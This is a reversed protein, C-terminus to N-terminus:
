FEDLHFYEAIRFQGTDYADLMDEVGQVSDMQYDVKLIGVYGANDLCQLHIADTAFDMQWGPTEQIRDVIGRSRFAQEVVGCMADATQAILEQEALLKDVGEAGQKLLDYVLSGPQLEMLWFDSGCYDETPAVRYFEVGGNQQAFESRMGAQQPKFGDLWFIHMIAHTARDYRELVFQREGDKQLYDGCSIMILVSQVMETVSVRPLGLAAHLKPSAYGSLANEILPRNNTLIPQEIPFLVTMPPAVASLLPLRFVESDYWPLHTTTVQLHETYPAGYMVEILSSRPRQVGTLKASPFIARAEDAYLEQRM